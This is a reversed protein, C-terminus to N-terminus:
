KGKNLIASLENYATQVAAAAVSVAVSKGRGALGTVVTSVASDFKVTGAVVKPAEAMVANLASTALEEAGAVVLPKILKALHVLEDGLQDIAEKLFHEVDNWFSM